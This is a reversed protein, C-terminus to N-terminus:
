AATKIEDLKEKKVKDGLQDSFPSRLSLRSFMAVFRITYPHGQALRRSLTRALEEADAAMEPTVKDQLDGWLARTVLWTLERQDPDPPFRRLFIMPTDTPYYYGYDTVLDRWEAYAVAIQRQPGAMAALARRRARRLIKRVGPYLFYAMFVLLLLPITILVNRRLQDYFLSEPPVVAPLFIPVAVDDSPLVNPDSIQDRSEGGLSAKAKLPTGIVPLWKYQPFYVEVFAAGHKPRVELTGEIVQDGGDFGYGIRAPVGVWRALMAQAAVIEFPSGEKSGALLDDIREPPISVPTGPGSATVTELLTSRVFDFRDWQNTFRSSAETLLAQVAPPASPINIFRRLARPVSATLQRLSDVSPLGAATVTYALDPLVQGQTVRINGNRDDYSLAPGEAVIASTNPLGPLVAGGLDAMIFRAKVERALDPDVIGSRPVQDLSSEAFPPLRWDKGDYVDLTGMRWPGSISSEVTFLVRDEVQSIPVVKPKQAEETPDILPDPFLFGLRALFYLGVSLAIFLPLSKLARRLEYGTPLSEEGASQIGSLTGLSILFLILLVIGSAVQASSPISIAAIGVVPLPLLIGLSPRQIEVAMWTASFGVTGMIWGLIALWGSNFPVPPRLVDGSEVAATVLTGLNLLSRTGSPVVLLVGIGFVGIVIMLNAVIPNRIRRAALALGAGLIGAVAAFVRPAFGLFIGGAMVAAGLTSVVAALAARGESGPLVREGMKMRQADSEEGSIEPGEDGFGEEAVDEKTRGETEVAM